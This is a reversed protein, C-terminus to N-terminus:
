PSCTRPPPTAPTRSSTPTSRALLARRRGALGRCGAEDLLMGPAAARRAGPRRPEQLHLRLDQDRVAAGRQRRAACRPSRAGEGGDPEAPSSRSRARARGGRRRGLNSRRYEFGLQARRERRTPARPRERRRGVRARAGLEGGYANANMRVAGGVTGPINVGFELGTLGARAARASAQQCGRAAAASCRAPRGARDHRASRRAKHRTRPCGCRSGPPELGLGGSRGRDARRRAWRWCSAGPREDGRARSGTAAGAPACPPSGRSRTTASWARPCREHASVLRRALEDVDGAGMTLLLDGERLEERLVREADDQSPLWAVPGGTPRRRRGGRGRALGSVGPFDEARERAPYIDLVVVVDALALARASTARSCARHALLSAAPLCAVLAGRACRAPRRSRPACRPRTTPTTTSSARARRPAASRARLAARRGPLPRARRRGGGARRGGAPVGRARGAANLM